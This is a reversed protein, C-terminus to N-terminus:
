DFYPFERRELFDLIDGPPNHFTIAGNLRRGIAALPGNPIGYVTGLCEKGSLLDPVGLKKLNLPHYSFGLFCIRAAEQIWAKATDLIRDDITQHVIRICEAARQIDGENHSPAYDRKWGHGPLWSPAGLEGHIHLVPLTEVLPVVDATPFNATLAKFM